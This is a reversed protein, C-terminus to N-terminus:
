NVEHFPLSGSLGLATLRVLTKDTVGPAVGTHEALQIPTASIATVLTSTEPAM